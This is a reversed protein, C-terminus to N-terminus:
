KVLNNVHYIIGVADEQIGVINHGTPTTLTFNHNKQLEAVILNVRQARTWAPKHLTLAKYRNDAYAKADEINM